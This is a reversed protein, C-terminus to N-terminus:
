KMGKFIELGEAADKIPSPAESIIVIDKDRPLKDFLSKWHASTTDIHKKEGKEGWEIGSFHCHWHKQKFSKKLLEFQHEGYRALVHAFDICFGCGTENVLCSIEEISGFVNKKGIIEPCLVISLKKEKVIKMLEKIQIKINQYVLEKADKQYYGCHFVINVKKGAGLYHGIEASKLIRKKSMEIKKEDDSNLNIWYPAHVSLQIGLKKAIKGIEIAKEKKLYVGYTFEVECAKLGLKHYEQLNDIVEKEGGLGGPGFKIKMIILYLNLSKFKVM